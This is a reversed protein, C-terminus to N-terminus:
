KVIVTTNTVSDPNAAKIKKAEAEIKTAEALADVAVRKTHLESDIVDNERQVRARMREIELRRIEMDLSRNEDEFAQSRSIEQAKKDAAAKNAINRRQQEANRAKAAARADAEQKAQARISAEIKQQKINNNAAELASLDAMAPSSLLAAVVLYIKRM